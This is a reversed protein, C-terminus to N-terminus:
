EVRGDLEAQLVQEMMGVQFANNDTVINHARAESLAYISTRIVEDPLLALLESATMGQDMAGKITLAVYNNNM